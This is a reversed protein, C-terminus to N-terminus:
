EAADREMAPPNRFRELLEAECAKAAEISAEKIHGFGRIQEPIAAIEVATAHNRPTLNSLVEKIVDAYEAILARERRREATWGFPDFFTGRLGKMYSLLDLLRFIWPGFERKKPVGSSPDRRALLPPALHLSIKFDGSFQQDLKHRFSPDRYLRAVEYEDKIAMLKFYGRAVARTLDERGPLSQSEAVAVRDVLSKYRAAYAENAYDTLFKVRRGVIEELSTAIRYSDPVETPEAAEEVADIDVAARRGWTFARKNAEVAVGNLEIAQVLAAEGIPVLGKQWAYGLVFLNTGISDGLLTTALRTAEIFDTADPGAAREILGRLEEAPFPLDPDRTFDGTMVEHSNVVARTTGADFKSLAEFDATVVLDCGIVLDANGASIRVAHLDEPRRAIRIHSVVAGGKQALGAMDLITVGKDEIHAAMGLLAGITVVGTGGVGTVLISYPNELDPLSPEPLVEWAAGKAALAAGTGAQVKRIEGGHVTVFSPCFGALCSFDKNCASQDIARKRGFETELPVVSVCNSQVSCDGCGECVLDNIFVRRPPDPYLGRKRRRRKEAACTQDYLLISVGEVERLEKQVRELQDRDEVTVGDAWATGLPYKLPEDTVVVTRTVGEAQLQRTIRAPSLPGDVPQGGTMAVADNYLIKYTINVGAAVAARVALIGSHYYTGDGLNAFVHKTKSFPAQGIWPVGEGGMQTFTSTSRDMWLVMWHCGIGALARSGEPVKTSSNHPCGSCFWPLRKMSAQRRELAREKDSLFQLRSEIEESQHFRAIRKAIARAIRAPTLEGTSPLIWEGEDDFKGIVRPRVDARWNYLQEKLQNEIVARKEEVVLIEELGEAFQRVIERELPWVMGVKLLTIGLEAAMQDDIGLDALAQRADLYSKGATVIGFRRRESAIVVENLANVRAYALAAYIKHKHLREEQILRDDPWRINLGGEPIELIDPGPLAVEIRHPDVYCSASSEVTEGIVKFGVWCGSYRSLAWGHIGLDLFEQVGAPSLVPVMADMFAYECQHATTSSKAAHDDGALLLVGGNRSSGAMNGHRLVDGSRDVGPGKAYWMSFVGDYRCDGFIDNQQSGWVATAALDENVGPEFHVHGKELFRKARWLQQDFAGLPSGRYGSIFAATNLGSALDRQRQMMPLRVLAQTGTLFVRGSALDYKDDLSVAKKTM